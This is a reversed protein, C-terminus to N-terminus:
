SNILLNNSTELGNDRWDINEHQTLKTVAQLVESNMILVSQTRSTFIPPIWFDYRYPIM